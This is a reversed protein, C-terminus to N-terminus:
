SFKLSIRAEHIGFIAKAELSPDGHVTAIHEPLHRRATEVARFYRDQEAAIRPLDLSDHPIPIDLDM